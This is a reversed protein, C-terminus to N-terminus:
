LPKLMDTETTVTSELRALAKTAGTKEIRVRVNAWLLNNDSGGSQADVLTLANSGRERAYRGYDSHGQGLPIAVTDPRIAPFVYVPAEIEGYLSTVRVVDGDQLGLRDATQPNMEVWTQWSITTMPDPSGQLWPSNAGSGDSLLVSFYLHLFYPYEKEDGQYTAAPVVIPGSLTPQLPAESPASEPWWGGHQQFREWRVATDDGGAAGKPLSAIMEQLYAVEDQWPLAAAAQPIGKAVTLLVDGTSQIDYLPPVVPQQSGVVPLGQFSPRVVDYGWGELYVRDPLIMDAYAATEDVMANFSVITDVSEMAAMFGASAPLDYGPNAGHLLLLKTKGTKMSNIMKQTDAFTSAPPAVLNTVPLDPTMSMGGPQGITGAVVNLAQVAAMAMVANDQGSLAPGPIALPRGAEAFIRALRTLDEVSLDCAAAAADLNVEGAIARARDVRDGPGYGQDAIIRMLAQAVLAEAGPQVPVWRDAKAGTISMKPEFQVLYGRRGYPQSRFQGFEAGYGVASLWVGLFDAGFSFVADAHSVDYTPLGAHGFLNGNAAALVDYGNLGSYLDYNVPPPAGIAQTFRAFLDYLHGSTTSGVWVAVASGAAQLKEFLMNIAENWAIPKFKREGRVEQTVAGTVRDPNYLLQLGAQGRACVKGRNVPHELNGEIKVARGNMIRVVIGCGAPCQRCTTAYFAPIGARQGNAPTDVYPELTVWREGKQSCGALVATATGAAGIKLFDRRTFNTM